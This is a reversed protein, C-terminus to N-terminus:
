LPCVDTDTATRGMRSRVATTAASVSPILLAFPLWFSIESRSKQETQPQLAPQAGSVGIIITITDSQPKEDNHFCFLSMPRDGERPGERGGFWEMEM